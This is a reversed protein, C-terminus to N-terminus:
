KVLFEWLLSDEPVASKKITGVKSFLALIEDVQKKGAFPKYLKALCGDWLLPEYMHATDLLYDAYIRYPKIYTDEGRVVEDWGDLTQEITRGRTQLDRICRRMLRLRRAPLVVYRGLEFNANPCVYVRYIIEDHGPKLDPNLAHNGEIILVDNEGVEIDTYGARNGTKFDFQPLRGRGTKSLDDIFRALYDLDLATINEFDFNGNKFRPTKDRSLFFDDLSIAHGTYGHKALEAKIKRSSTTKGSSSPGALLIIKKNETIVTATINRIQNHYIRESVSILEKLNHKANWNVVEIDYCTKM